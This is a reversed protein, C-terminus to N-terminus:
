SCLDCGCCAGCGCAPECCPGCDCTCVLGCGCALCCGYGCCCNVSCGCGAPSAGVSAPMQVFKMQEPMSTVVLKSYVPIPDEPVVEQWQSKLLALGGDIGQYLAALATSGNQLHLSRLAQLGSRYSDFYSSMAESQADETMVFDIIPLPLDHGIMVAVTTATIVGQDTKVPGKGVNIAIWYRSHELSTM